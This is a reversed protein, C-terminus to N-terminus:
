IFTPRTCSPRPKSRMDGGQNRMHRRAIRRLEDYVLPTLRDLATQDGGGWARILATIEVSAPMSVLTKESFTKWDNYNKARM